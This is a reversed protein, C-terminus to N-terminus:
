ADLYTFFIYGAKKFWDDADKFNKSKTAHAAPDYYYISRSNYGTILVASDTGTMAFVPSGKSVYFLLEDVTCGSVDFVVANKLTEEMASKPTAGNDILERVSLGDGHYNLLASVAQVVSSSTKDADNVELGSFAQQISKRARMWVYQQRSDVVVGMHDNAAIIADSIEGTALLVDGKQYVYYYEQDGKTDIVLNRDEELIVSKATLMKMKDADAGNKMVLQYQTEKKDTVTSGIAVKEDTDGERNMIADTGAAVYHGGSQKILHVTITYDEISISGIKGKKPQYTKLIEQSNESTDMIKLENMPFVTNGAAAVVVNKQAAEGYIFDEDIFGLPMIYSKNSAQIDYVSADKLNMLHITDSQYENDSDTWAFYQNSNSVTYCNERLNKVLVKTTLKDLDIGYLKQDMILYFMGQENVYMLKGMQAKLIEYSETSPLFVEEEITHVLGDYHYVATGVEGEHDGRNMYGYVVFDVSGAEDVRAIKIDHQDWNEREQIGETGLFSFVQVIKNNVRDFCWLEGQQVFAIVDGTESAAYEVNKDRIGLQIQNNESIFRNEGRFIQNLTREFNLVYMRSATMRLRYYEEVNYYETEGGSGETTVVYRLTVVNYSDNIEKFSAEVTGTQKPKLNAWTIQGLTCTLDVYNLTSTDGTAADMYKPIFTDADERFTYEHFQLAFDMCEKTYANETQIVRTYYRIEEKGSTLFVILEYETNEEMINQLQITSSLTRDKEKLDTVDGKAVLRSADLSRLEYRVGDISKGYTNIKIPLKRTHDVPTISDRMQAANMEQTYGHLRAVSQQGQYLEVMPLTAEAMTTTLDKNDQNTTISFVILAALFLVSLVVPKIVKRNM